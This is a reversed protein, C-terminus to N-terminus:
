KSVKDRFWGARAITFTAGLLNNGISEETLKTTYEIDDIVASMEATAMPIGFIARVATKPGALGGPMKWAGQGTLTLPVKTFAWSGYSEDPKSCVKYVNGPTVVAWGDGAYVPELAATIANVMGRLREYPGNSLKIEHRVIFGGYPGAETTTQEFSLEWAYVNGKLKELLTAPAETEATHQSLWQANATQANEITALVAAMADGHAPAQGTRTPRLSM